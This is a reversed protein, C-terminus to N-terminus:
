LARVQHHAPARRGVGWKVVRMYRKMASLTAASIAVITATNPDQDEHHDPEERAAEEIEEEGAVVGAVGSCIAVALRWSPM